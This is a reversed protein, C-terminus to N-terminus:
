GRAREGGVVPDLVGDAIEAARWCRSQHGGDLTELPPDV